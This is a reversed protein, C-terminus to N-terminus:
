GLLLEFLLVSAHSVQHKLLNVRLEGSAISPPSPHVPLGLVDDVVTLADLLSHRRGEDDVKELGALMRKLEAAHSLAEQQKRQAELQATTLRAMTGM